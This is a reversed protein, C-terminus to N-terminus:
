AGKKCNLAHCVTFIEGDVDCLSPLNTPTRGYRLAISDRFQHSSMSFGNDNTPVITLWTSCKTHFKREVAIRQTDPLNLLINQIHQVIKEEKELRSQHKKQKMDNEYMELDVTDNNRIADTLMKTSHFSTSYALSANFVPDKIGLGIHRVPKSMLEKEDISLNMDTLQPIFSDFLADKM